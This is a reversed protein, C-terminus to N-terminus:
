DSIRYVKSRFYCSFTAALIRVEFFIEFTTSTTRLTRLSAGGALQNPVEAVAAAAAAPERDSQRGGREADHMVELACIPHAIGLRRTTVWDGSPGEAELPAQAVSLGPGRQSSDFPAKAASHPTDVGEAMVCLECM